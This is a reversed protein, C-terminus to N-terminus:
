MLKQSVYDVLFLKDMNPTQVQENGYCGTAISIQNDSLPFVINMPSSKSVKAGLSIAMM